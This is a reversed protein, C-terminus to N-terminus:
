CHVYPDTKYNLITGLITGFLSGMDMSHQLNPVPGGETVTQYYKYLFPRQPAGM